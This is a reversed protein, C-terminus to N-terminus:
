NLEFLDHSTRDGLNGTEGGSTYAGKRWRKRLHPLISNTISPALPLKPPRRLELWEQQEIESRPGFEGQLKGSYLRVVVVADDLGAAVDAFVGELNVNTVSCGLEEDIERALAALDNEEREPKGGPLIFSEGGRKRVVLLRGDEVVALGIKEIWRFSM